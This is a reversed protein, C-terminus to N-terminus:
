LVRERRRQRTGMWLLTIGIMVDLTTVGAALAPPLKFVSLAVFGSVFGAVVAIVGAVQKVKGLAM